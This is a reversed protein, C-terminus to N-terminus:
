IVQSLKMYLTRPEVVSLISDKTHAYMLHGTGTQLPLHIPNARVDQYLGNVSTWIANIAIRILWANSYQLLHHTCHANWRSMPRLHDMYNRMWGLNYCQNRAHFAIWDLHMIQVNSIVHISEQKLIVPLRPILALIVHFIMFDEGLCEQNVYPVSVWDKM